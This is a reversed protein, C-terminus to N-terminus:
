NRLQSRNTADMERVEAELVFLYPDYSNLSLGRVYSGLAINPRRSHRATRIRHLFPQREQRRLLISAGHLIVREQTTDPDINYIDLTELTYGDKERYDLYDRVESAYAPDITYALGTDAPDACFPARGVKQM